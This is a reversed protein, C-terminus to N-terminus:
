TSGICVYRRRRRLGLGRQTPTCAVQDVGCAHISPERLRGHCVRWAGNTVDFGAAKVGEVIQARLEEDYGPVFHSRYDDYGSRLDWPCWFDGPVSLSGLPTTSHLAGVSCVGVVVSCGEAVLADAIAAYHIKAPQVYDKSPDAQHRQVFVLRTPTAAGPLEGTRVIVCHGEPTRIEKRTLGALFGGEGAHLLGSGGILGVCQMNFPHCLNRSHTASLHSRAFQPKCWDGRAM